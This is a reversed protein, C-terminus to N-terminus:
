PEDREALFNAVADGADTLAHTRGRYTDEPVTLKILGFDRLQKLARSIHAPTQDSANYIDSPDGRRNEALYQIIITRYKSAKVYGVADWELDSDPLTADSLSGSSEFLDAVHDAVEAGRETLGYYRGKRITEDVLLCSLGADTLDTLALSVSAMGVDTNDTIEKPTAPGDTLYELVTARREDRRVLSIDDWPRDTVAARADSM